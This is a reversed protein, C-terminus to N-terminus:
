LKKNWIVDHSKNLIKMLHPGQVMYEQVKCFTIILNYTIIIVIIMMIIIIIIIIIIMIIIIIIMIMIIIIIIKGKLSWVIVLLLKIM